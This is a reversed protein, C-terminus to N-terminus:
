LTSDVDVEEADVYKYEKYNEKDAEEHSRDNVYGSWGYWSGAGYGWTLFFGSREPKHEYCYPCRWYEIPTMGDAPQGCVICTHESIYEYKMVVKRTTYTSWEDYWHLSGYKEKIDTIRYQLLARRGGDKLLASKIEKCMEIGFAKRWGVPMADLETYYPVAHFLELVRHLCRYFYWKIKYPTSTWENIFHMKGDEDKRCDVLKGKDVVEDMWGIVRWNNYHRGTFRNRPYLFPFRICLISAPIIGTIVRWTHRLRYSTKFIIGYKDM